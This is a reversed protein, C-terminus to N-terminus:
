QRPPALDRELLFTAIARLDQETAWATGDRIVEGMSGGLVDGSPTAGTKLGFVLSDEDWGNRRLSQSTIPASEGGGPLGGAGHLAEEAQRAGLFNRPTHCAGCHAPGTVLYAGRNFAESRAPDPRFRGEEFFLARWLKLGARLNFPAPIDHPPAPTPVAPVTKFAAFLDAVDQDSLKTYFPYPFAPYYPEGEPSVGQRVARAFDGLSWDGIGAGPDTTLNPAYFTGFDTKLPPGGALPQGGARFDSHCAICGGIRALYAGREPDGGLAPIAHDQAVPLLAVATAAAGALVALVLFLALFKRM